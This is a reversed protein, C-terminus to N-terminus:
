PSLSANKSTYAVGLAGAGAAMTALQSDPSSLHGLNSVGEEQSYVSSRSAPSTPSMTQAMDTAFPDTSTPSRLSSYSVARGGLWAAPEPGPGSSRRSNLSRTPSLPPRLPPLVGLDVESDPHVPLTVDAASRNAPHMLSANEGTGVIPVPALLSVGGGADDQSRTDGMPSMGGDEGASSELTNGGRLRGYAGGGGSPDHSVPGAGIFRTGMGGHHDEDEEDLVLARTGGHPRSLAAAAAETQIHHMRHRRYAFFGWAATLGVFAIVGIILGVLAGKDHAFINGNASGLNPLLTGTPVVTTYTRTQTRGDTFYTTREIVTTYLTTSGKITTTSPSPDLVPRSSTLTFSGWTQSSISPPDTTPISLSMGTTETPRSTTSSASTSGSSPPVSTSGRSSTSADTSTSPGSTSVTSSDSTSGPPVSTTTSSPPLTTTTSSISPISTPLSIRGTGTSPTTNASTPEASFSADSSVSSPATSSPSSASSTSGAGTAGESTAASGPPDAAQRKWRPISPYAGRESVAPLTGYVTYDRAHDPSPSVVGAQARPMSSVSLLVLM